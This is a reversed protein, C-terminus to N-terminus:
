KKTLTDKIEDLRDANFLFGGHANRYDPQIEGLDIRTKLTKFACGVKHQLELQTLVEIPTVQTKRKTKM